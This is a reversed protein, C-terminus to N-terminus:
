RRCRRARWWGRVEPAIVVIAAIAAIVLMLIPAFFIMWGNM